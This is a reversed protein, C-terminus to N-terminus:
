DFSLSGTGALEVVLIQATGGHSAGAFGAVGGRAAYAGMVSRHGPGAEHTVRIAYAPVEM